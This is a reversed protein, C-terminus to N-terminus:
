FLNINGGKHITTTNADVYNRTGLRVESLLYKCISFLKRNIINRRRPYVLTKVDLFMRFDKLLSSEIKRLFKFFDSNSSGM